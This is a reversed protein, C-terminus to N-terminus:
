CEDNSGYISLSFSVLFFVLWNAFQILGFIPSHILTEKAANTAVCGPEAGFARVGRKGGKTTVGYRQDLDSILLDGAYKSSAYVKKM